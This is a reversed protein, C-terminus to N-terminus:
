DNVKTSPFLMVASFSISKRWVRIGFFIPISTIDAVFLMGIDELETIM